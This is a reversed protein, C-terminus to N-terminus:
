KLACGPRISVSGFAGISCCILEISLLEVKKSVDGSKKPASQLRPMMWPRRVETARSIRRGFTSSAEFATWPTGELLLQTVHRLFKNLTRYRTLQCMELWTINWTLDLKSLSPIGMRWTCQVNQRTCCIHIMHIAISGINYHLQGILGGSCPSNLQISTQKM